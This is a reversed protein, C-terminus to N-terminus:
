PWLPLKYKISYITYGFSAWNFAFWYTWSDPIFRAIACGIIYWIVSCVIYKKM